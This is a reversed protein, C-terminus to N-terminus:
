ETYLTEVSDIKATISTPTLEGIVTWRVSVLVIIIAHITNLQAVNSLYSANEIIENTPIISKKM